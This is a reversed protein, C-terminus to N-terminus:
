RKPTLQNREMHVDGQARKPMEMSPHVPEGPSSALKSVLSSAGVHKLVRGRIRCGTMAAANNIVQPMDSEMHSTVAYPMFVLHGPLTTAMKSALRPVWRKELGRQKM